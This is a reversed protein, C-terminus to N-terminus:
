GTFRGGLGSSSDYKRERCSRGARVVGLTGRREVADAVNTVCGGAVIRLCGTIGVVGRGAAGATVTMGTRDVTRIGEFRGAAMSNGVVGMFGSNDRRAPIAGAEATMGHPSSCAYIRRCYGAISGVAHATVLFRCRQMGACCGSGVAAGAMAQTRGGCCFDSARDTSSIWVPKSIMTTGTIASMSGCGTGYAVITGARGAAVVGPYIVALSRGGSRDSVALRINDAGHYGAYGGGVAGLADPCSGITCGTVM